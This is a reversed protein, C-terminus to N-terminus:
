DIAERNTREIRKACSSKREDEANGTHEIQRMASQHHGGDDGGPGGTIIQVHTSVRACCETDGDTKDRRKESIEEDHPWQLLRSFDALFFFLNEDQSCRQEPSDHDLLQNGIKVGVIRLRHRWDNFANDPNGTHARRGVLNERRDHAPEDDANQPQQDVRAPL